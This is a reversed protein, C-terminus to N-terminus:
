DEGLYEKCNGLASHGKCAHDHHKILEAELKEFFRPDEAMLASRDFYGETGKNNIFVIAWLNSRNPCAYSIYHSARATHSDASSIDEANPGYQKM